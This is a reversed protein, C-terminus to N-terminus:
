LKDRAPVSRSAAPAGPARGTLIGEVGELLNRAVLDPPRPWEHRKSEYEDAGYGTLVLVTQLGAKFGLLMDRQTDGVIYSSSLDIQFRSAADEVMGTGPKRCRCECRYAPLTAEPHHPCYYLADLRAGRAALEREILGHAERVFEETYLGKGVGGQNTVVITLFGAQNLKAIAEATWPYIRVDEIRSLYGVDHILTGDRDLFVARVHHNQDAGPLAQAKTKEL